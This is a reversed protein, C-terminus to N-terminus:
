IHVLRLVKCNKLPRSCYYDYDFQYCTCICIIPWSCSNLESFTLKCSILSRRSNYSKHVGTTKFPQGSKSWKKTVNNAINLLIQHNKGRLQWLVMCPTNYLHQMIACHCALRHKGVYLFGFTSLPYSIPAGLISNLWRSFIRRLPVIITCEVPGINQGRRIQNM